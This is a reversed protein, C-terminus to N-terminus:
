TTFPRQHITAPQGGVLTQTFWDAFARGDVETVVDITPERNAVVATTGQLAGAEIAVDVAFRETRAWSSNAAVAVTLPAHLVPAHPKDAHWAHTLQMLWKVADDSVAELAAIHTPGLGTQRTINFPVLTLPVGSRVVISSAIPDCRMNWEPETSAFNGGMAYVHPIRQALTPDIALALALNMLPGITVLVVDSDPRAYTNRIADVAHVTSAAFMTDPTLDLQARSVAIHSDGLITNGVGSYVPVDGHKYLDLLHRVMRARAVTDGWVTTVGVLEIDPDILALALAYADDIDDGIDTDLLIRM